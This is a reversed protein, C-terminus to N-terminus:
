TDARSGAGPDGTDVLLSAGRIPGEIRSSVKLFTHRRHRVGRISRGPQRSKVGIPVSTARMSVPEASAPATGAAEVREPRQRGPGGVRFYHSPPSACNFRRRANVM